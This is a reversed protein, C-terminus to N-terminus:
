LNNLSLSVPCLSGMNRWRLLLQFRIPLNHYPCLKPDSKKKKSSPFSMYGSLVERMEQNQTWLDSKVTNLLGHPVQSLIPKEKMCLMIELGKLGLPGLELLAYISKM